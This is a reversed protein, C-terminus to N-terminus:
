FMIQGANFLESKQKVSDTQKNTNNYKYLM